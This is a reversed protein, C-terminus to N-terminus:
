ARNWHTMCLLQSDFMISCPTQPTLERVYTGYIENVKKWIPDLNRGSSQKTLGKRSSVPGFTPPPTLM